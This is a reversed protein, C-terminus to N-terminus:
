IDILLNSRVVTYYDWTVSGDSQDCGGGVLYAETNNPTNDKGKLFGKCWERGMCEHFLDEVNNDYNYWGRGPLLEHQIASLNGCKGEFQHMFKHRHVACVRYNYRYDTTSEFMRNFKFEKNTHDWICGPGYNDAYIVSITGEFILCCM